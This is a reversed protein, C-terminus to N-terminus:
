DNQTMNTELWYAWACNAFSKHVLNECWYVIQLSKVHAERPILNGATVPPNGDCIALLYLVAAMNWSKRNIIM